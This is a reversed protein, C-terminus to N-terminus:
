APEAQAQAQAPAPPDAPVVVARAAPSASGLASTPTPLPEFVVVRNRGDRKAAYCASDADRLVEAMSAYQGHVAVLGISAGVTHERDQWELRYDAVCQRLQEAIVQARPLPCGMLLVAFEDGGLRAVSDSRRLGAQMRQALERLLADGAAHGGSDNVQKFRDLDIFLVCLPTQASLATAHGLMQEFAARNPVGTLSDHRAVWALQERLSRAQTVDEIIWITGKTPDGAVVARGRMHAWFPGGDGRVLEVEGDFAGFETFAPRARASLAQYAQESPYIFATAQGVAQARTCRFMQCFHRSVLEFRSSRSLAIGVEAHDLVAELQQALAAVMQARERGQALVHEFARSLDGVEDRGDPWAAHPAGDDRLLAEAHRRLRHIPRTVWWAGLLSLTASGFGVALAAQWAAVIAIDLVAADHLASRMSRLAAYATCGASLAGVGMAIAVIKFKLSGLWLRLRHLLSVAIM